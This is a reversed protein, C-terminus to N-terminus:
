GDGYDRVIVDGWWCKECLKYESDKAYNDLIDENRTSLWGHGTCSSYEVGCVGKEKRSEKRHLVRYGSSTKPRKLEMNERIKLSAFLLKILYNLNVFIL